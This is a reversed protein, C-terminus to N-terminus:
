SEYMSSLYSLVNICLVSTPDCMGIRLDQFSAGYPRMGLLKLVTAKMTDTRKENEEVTFRNM